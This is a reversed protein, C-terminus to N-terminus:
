VKLLKRFSSYFISGLVLNYLIEGMLLSTNNILFQPSLTLYFAVNLMILLFMLNVIQQWPFIKALGYGFILLLCLASVSLDFYFNLRLLLYAMGVLILYFLFGVEFFCVALLFAFILNPKVGFINFIDLHQLLGLIIVATILIIKKPFDSAM